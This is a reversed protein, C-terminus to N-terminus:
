RLLVGREVLLAKVKFVNSANNIGSNRLEEVIDATSIEDAEALCDAVLDVEDQPVDAMPEKSIEIGLVGAIIPISEDAFARAEMECPRLRYRSRKKGYFTGPHGLHVVSQNAHQLEHAIICGFALRMDPLKKNGGCARGALFCEKIKEPALYIEHSDLIPTYMHLGLTPRKRRSEHMNSIISFNSGTRFLVDVLDKVQPKTLVSTRESYASLNVNNAM